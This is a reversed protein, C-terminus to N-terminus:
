LMQCVHRRVTRWICWINVRFRGGVLVSFKRGGGGGGGDRKGGGRDEVECFSLGDSVMCFPYVYDVVGGGGRRQCRGGLRM